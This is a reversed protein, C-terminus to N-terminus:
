PHQLSSSENCEALQLPRGAPRGLAGPIHSLDYECCLAGAALIQWSDALMGHASSSLRPMPQQAVDPWAQLQKIRLGAAPAATCRHSRGAPVKIRMGGRRHRGLEILLLMRAGGTYRVAM